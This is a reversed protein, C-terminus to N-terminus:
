KADSSSGLNTTARRGVSRSRRRAAQQPSDTEALRSPGPRSMAKLSQASPQPPVPPTSVVALSSTAADRAAELRETLEQKRLTLERTVFKMQALRQPWDTRNHLLADVLPSPRAAGAPPRFHSNSYIQRSFDDVAWPWDNAANSRLVHKVMRDVARVNFEFCNPLQEVAHRVCFLFRVVREREVSSELSFSREVLTEFGATSRHAPDLLLALFLDIEAM